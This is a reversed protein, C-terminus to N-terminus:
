KGEERKKNKFYDDTRVIEPAYEIANGFKRFYRGDSDVQWKGADSYDLDRWKKHSFPNCRMPNYKRM